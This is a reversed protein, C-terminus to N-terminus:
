AELNLEEPVEKTKKNFGWQNTKKNFGACLPVRVHGKFQFYPESNNSIWRCWEREWGTRRRRAGRDERRRCSKTRRRPNAAEQEQRRSRV